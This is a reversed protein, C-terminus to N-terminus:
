NQSCYYKWGFCTASSYTFAPQALPLNHEKTSLSVSACVADVRAPDSARRHHLQATGSTLGRSVARRASGCPELNAEKPPPSPAVSPSIKHAALEGFSQTFGSYSLSAGTQGVPSGSPPRQVLFDFIQPLHAMLMHVFKAKCQSCCSFHPKQLKGRRAPTQPDGVCGGAGPAPCPPARTDRVERSRQYKHFSGRGKTNLIFLLLLSLM